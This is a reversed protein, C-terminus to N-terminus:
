ESEYDSNESESETELNNIYEKHKKTKIHMQKNIKLIISGCECHLKIKNYEKNYIKKNEIKEENSLYSRRINICDYRKIYFDERKRLDEYSECPFEEILEIKCNIVDYEDFLDFVSVYHYNGNNYRKYDAKHNCLRINLTKTTSGIYQHDEPINDDDYYDIPIIRYIKSNEYDAVM